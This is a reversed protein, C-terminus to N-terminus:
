SRIGDRFAGWASRAYATFEEGDGILLQVDLLGQVLTFYLYADGGGRRRFEGRAAGEAFLRMLAQTFWRNQERIEARCRERLAPQSLLLMNKWFRLRHGQSFYALLHWFIGELKEGSRESRQEAVFRELDRRCDAVARLVAAEVIEDKSKFHSYLSAPRIGVAGALESMSFGYGEEAFLAGAAELIEEKKGM